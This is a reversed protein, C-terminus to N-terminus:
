LTQIVAIKLKLDSNYSNEPESLPLYISFVSGSVQTRKIRNSQYPKLATKGKLNKQTKIHRCLTDSTERDSAM